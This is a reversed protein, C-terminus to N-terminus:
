DLKELFLRTVLSSTVPKNSYYSGNVPAIDSETRGVATTVFHHDCLVGNTPDMGIWGAGPLYTEVWAHMSSSAKKEEKPKDGEWVFGSALRTALGNQRLTEALLTSFDRCSGSGRKLIEAATHRHSSERREYAINEFIWSNINVLTEVTPRPISPALPSPLKANEAMTIYPALVALEKDKYHCPIKLGHSDLLFQFPNKEKVSLEITTRFGLRNSTNPYFCYAVLNDHLDRRYQIQADSNTQLHFQDVKFHLDVRPYIRLTHPSLSVLDEYTYLTEKTIKLKM